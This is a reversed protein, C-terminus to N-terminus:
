SGPGLSWRRAVLAVHLRSRVSGDALDVGLAEAARGLRYYLTTRHLSLAAATRQADGALDLYTQLTTLLVEGPHGSRRSADVGADELPALPERWTALRAADAGLLLQWVGLGDWSVRAVAPDALRPEVRGCRAAHHARALAERLTTADLAAVTAVGVVDERGARDARDFRHVVDPHRQRVLAVSRGPAVEVRAPAGPLGPDLDAMAGVLREGEEPGAELLDGLLAGLRASTGAGTGAVRREAPLLALLRDAYTTALRVEEEGLPRDSELVWLLARVVGRRRVPVCLRASMGAEANAPLRVPREASSTRHLDQWARAAAPVQRTLIAEVRARDVDAGHVSHGLLRGDPGDLSVGRGLAAALRDLEDQLDGDM